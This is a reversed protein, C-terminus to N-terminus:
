ITVASTLRINKTSAAAAALIIPPASDLFEERHHEGIGFIDIGISDAYEVRELLEGLAQSNSILEGNEDKFNASAFTDIGIEM